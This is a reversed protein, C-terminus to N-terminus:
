IVRRVEHWIEEAVEGVPARGDVIVTRGALRRKGADLFGRRVREAYAVGKAEVRDARAARGGKGARRRKSSRSLGQSAPVDVIVTLDPLSGGLAARALALVPRPGIEGAYGQYVISSLLFRDSIVVQGAALAPRIVEGVLQARSAMYLLLETWPCMASLAPDLLVERVREGTPTGGPERVRVVQLRAEREIREALLAAQTSKGAGDPGEIAIFAGGRNRHTM